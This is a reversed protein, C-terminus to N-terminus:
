ELFKEPLNSEAAIDRIKIAGQEHRRALTMMAQLAYLGKQSIKLERNRRGAQNDGM